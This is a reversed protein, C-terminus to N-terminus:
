DKKGYEHLSTLCCGNTKKLLLCCHAKAAISARSPGFLNKENQENGQSLSYSVGYANQISGSVPMFAGHNCM